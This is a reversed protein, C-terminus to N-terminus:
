NKVCDNIATYLNAYKKEILNWVKKSTIPKLKYCGNVESIFESALLNNDYRSNCEYKYIIYSKNNIDLIALVVCKVKNGDKDTIFFKDQEQM